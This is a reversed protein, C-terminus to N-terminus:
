TGRTRWGKTDNDGASEGRRPSGQLSQGEEGEGDDGYDRDATNEMEGATERNRLNILGTLLTRSAEGKGWARTKM